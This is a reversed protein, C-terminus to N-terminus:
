EAKREYRIMHIQFLPCKLQKLKKYIKKKTVYALELQGGETKRDM